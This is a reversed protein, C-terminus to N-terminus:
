RRAQADFWKRPEALHVKTKGDDLSLGAALGKFKVFLRGDGKKAQLHLWGLIELGKGTIAIDDLFTRGQAMDLELRGDIDRVDPVVSLWRPTNEIERLMFIVPRIDAMRVTLDGAVAIPRGLTIAGRPIGVDVYWAALKRQQKETMQEDGVDDVRLSTDVLTFRRDPLSGEALKARLVLDARHVEGRSEMSIDDADLALEGNASGAEDVEVRAAVAASGGLIRTPAQDPIMANFVRVDPIATEPLAVTVNSPPSPQALAFRPWAADLVLGSGTIDGSEDFDAHVRYTPLEIHASTAPGGDGRATELRVAASGVIRLAMLAVEFAPSDLDLRTGPQLVGREIEFRADIRGSGRATIGPTIRHALAAREGLDGALEITGTLGSVIDAIEPRPITFPRVEIATSFRLDETVAEPGFSVTLPEIDVRARHITVSDRSRITVGGGVRGQGTVALENLAAHLPGDVAVGTLKITWPRRHRKKPYLDEPKPDPPNSLGPIEPYYATDEPAVQISQGDKGTRVHDLRRRLRLDVGDAKVSRVHLTKMPLKLLSIVARARPVQIYLQNARTQNRLEFNRVSVVGPLWTSASDWTILMKEPKRNILRGLTGTRLMANAGVVYILEVAIVAIVLRRLWTLRRTSTPRHEADADHM